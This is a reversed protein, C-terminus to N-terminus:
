RFPECFVKDLLHCLLPDQLIVLERLPLLLHRMQSPLLMGYVVRPAECPMEARLSSSITMSNGSLIRSILDPSSGGFIHRQTSGPTERFSLQASLTSKSFLIVTIIQLNLFVVGNCLDCVFPPSCVYYGLFWTFFPLPTIWSSSYQVFLVSPIEFTNGLCLQHGAHVTFSLNQVQSDPGITASVLSIPQVSSLPVSLLLHPNLKSKNLEFWRPATPHFHGM